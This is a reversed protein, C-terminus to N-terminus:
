QAKPAPEPKQELLDELPKFISEYNDVTPNPPVFDGSSLDPGTKLSTNILWYFPFLCFLVILVVAVWLLVRNWRVGGTSRDARPQDAAAPVPQQDAATM